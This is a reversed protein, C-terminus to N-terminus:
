LVTVPINTLVSVKSDFAFNVKATACSACRVASQFVCSVGGGGVGWLFDKFGLPNGLTELSPSFIDSQKRSVYPSVYSSACFLQLWLFHM